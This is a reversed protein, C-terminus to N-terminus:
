PRWGCIGSWSYELMRASGGLAKVRYGVRQMRLDNGIRGLYEGVRRIELDVIRAEEKQGLHNLRLSERQLAVLQLALSEEEPDDLPKQTSVELERVEASRLDAVEVHRTIDIGCYPCSILGGEGSFSFVTLDTNCHPCNSSDIDRNPLLHFVIDFGGRDANPVISYAGALVLALFGRTAGESWKQEHGIQIVLFSLAHRNNAVDKDKVWLTQMNSKADKNM